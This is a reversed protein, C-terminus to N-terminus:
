PTGDHRGFEEMAKDSVSQLIDGVQQLVGRRRERDAQGLIAAGVLHRHLLPRIGGLVWLIRVGDRIGGDAEVHLLSDTQLTQDHTDYFVGEFLHYSM